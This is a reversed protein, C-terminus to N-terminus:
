KRSGGQVVQAGELMMRLETKRTAAVQQWHNMLQLFSSQDAQVRAADAMMGYWNAKAAAMLYALDIATTATTIEPYRQKTWTRITLDATSRVPRLLWLRLDPPVGQVQWLSSSLIQGHRGQLAGGVKAVVEVRLVALTNANLAYNDAGTPVIDLYEVDYVEPWADLIAQNIADNWQELELPALYLEYTDGAEVTATFARDVTLTDTAPAFATIWRWQGEPAAGGAAKIYAIAGKLADTETYRNLGATDIITTTTGGTATGSVLRSVERALRTRLDKLYEAM